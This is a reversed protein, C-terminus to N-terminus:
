FKAAIKDISHQYSQGSRAANREKICDADHNQEPILFPGRRVSECKDYPRPAALIENWPRCFDAPARQTMFVVRQTAQAHIRIMRTVMQIRMRM